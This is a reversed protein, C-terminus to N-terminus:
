PKKVQKGKTNHRYDKCAIAEEPTFGYRNVRAQFTGKKIHFTDEIEQASYEKGYITYKVNNRKNNQQDKNTVWRCNSPEYNGNVDIRDITLDDSYGHSLAWEIFARSNNRWEDCIKIGRDHYYTHHQDKPNCCRDVMGRYIGYLRKHKRTMANPDKHEEHVLCGCSKTVGSVLLEQTTIHTKGCSCQCLWRKKQGKGDKRKMPEAEAIVTLRGFVKGALNAGHRICGCSHTHGYILGHQDIVKKNGCDCQCNWYWHTNGHKDKKEGVYSLVVLKGFRKGIFNEQKAM